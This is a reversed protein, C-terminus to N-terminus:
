REFRILSKLRINGHITPYPLWGEWHTFLTLLTGIVVCHRTVHKIKKKYFSYDSKSVNRLEFQCTFNQVSYNLVTCKLIRHIDHHIWRWKIQMFFSHFDMYNSVFKLYYNWLIHIWLNWYLWLYRVDWIALIISSIRLFSIKAIKNSHSFSIHFVFNPFM